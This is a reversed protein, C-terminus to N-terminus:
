TLLVLKSMTIKAILKLGLPTITVQNEKWSCNESQLRAPVSNVIFCKLSHGLEKEAKEIIHTIKKKTVLIIKHPFCALKAKTKEDIWGKIEYYVGNLIFDPYFLHNKGNFTYVFGTRNRKPKNGKSLQYYLWAAEWTSDVYFNFFYGHCGRGSGQRLGGSKGKLARKLSAIRRDRAIKTENQYYTKLARSQKLRGENSQLKFKMAITAKERDLKSPPKLKWGTIKDPNDAYFSKLSKAVKRYSAATRYKRVYAGSCKRNCFRGSGYKGSHHQGCQECLM